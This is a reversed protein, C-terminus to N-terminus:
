TKAPGCAQLKDSDYGVPPKDSKGFGCRDYCVCRIGQMARENVQYEWMQSNLPWGHIFIIPKGEVIDEYYINVPPTLSSKSTQFYPM